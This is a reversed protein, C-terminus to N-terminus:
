WAERGVPKASEWLALDAPPQAKPNCQAIMNALVYKRKRSLVIQQQENTDLSMAQGAALGLDKLVSPPLVAVTSNGYKRLIVEM